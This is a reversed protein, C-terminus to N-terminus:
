STKIHKRCTYGSPMNTDNRIDSRLNLQTIKLTIGIEYNHM